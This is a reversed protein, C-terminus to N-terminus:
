CFDFPTQPSPLDSRRAEAAFRRAIRAQYEIQTVPAFGTRSRLRPNHGEDSGLEGALKPL